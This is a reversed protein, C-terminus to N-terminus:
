NKEPKIPNEQSDFDMYFDSLVGGIYPDDTPYM